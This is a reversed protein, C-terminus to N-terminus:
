DASSFDQKDLCIKEYEQLLKIMGEISENDINEKNSQTPPLIAKM